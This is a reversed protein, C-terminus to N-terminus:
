APVAEPETTTARDADAEALPDAAPKPKASAKAAPQGNVAQLHKIGNQMATYLARADMDLPGDLKLRSGVELRASADTHLVTRNGIKEAFLVHESDGTVYAQVRKDLEPVFRENGNDDTDRKVHGIFWVGIDRRDLLKGIARRFVGEAMSTGKGFEVLGAAVKGLSAGAHADALKYAMDITDIVITTFRTQGPAVIADVVDEFQTWGQDIHQVYHEGPLLDTGHQLDIFLTSNPAWNAALTTKGVKPMGLLLVRAKLPDPHTTAISQPKDPLQFTQNSTTM